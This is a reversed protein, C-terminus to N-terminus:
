ALPRRPVPRASVLVGYLLLGIGAWVLQQLRRTVGYALGLASTFGLIRFTLLRTGEQVGIDIPIAFSVLDFWVGLVVISAAKSLSPSPATLALFYFVPVVGWLLGAFHWSVSLILDMPRTTHFRRLEEDVENMFGATKMFAPGRLRHRACWRVIAGLKGYRQVLLFGVIGCALVVTVAVLVSWLAPGMTVSSLLACCGSVIFILQALACFLKDLLVASAAQPGTGEMALLTGKTVEGGLGATPTLYNISGGAMLVCFVRSFPLSRLPGSVCHRWGQTHFLTSAGELLVLPVLAWGLGTFQRWLTLPGVHYVLLGLLPAGVALTLLHFLKIRRGGDAGRDAKRSRGRGEESVAERADLGAENAM